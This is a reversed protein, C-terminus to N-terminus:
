LLLAPWDLLGEGLDRVTALLGLRAARVAPDDAMVFVDEFFTTVPGVLRGAAATFRVLDPQAADGLEARVATVAEHLAVEAPEKLVAPDYAAATGAPVIRRARQVAEAIARFDPDRVAAGLQGLLHVAVSPRASHPLVARVRDVPHGEEVLAQELRRRLFEGCAALVDEGVEVPQRAAAAALGDSLSLASFVGSRHVAILGLVARRV